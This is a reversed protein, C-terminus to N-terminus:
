GALCQGVRLSSRRRRTPPTDCPFEHCPKKAGFIATPLGFDLVEPVQATDRPDERVQLQRHVHVAELDLVAGAVHHHSSSGGVPCPPCVYCTHFLLRHSGAHAVAPLTNDLRWLPKVLRPLAQTTCQQRTTASSRCDVRTQPSALRESRLMRTPVLWPWAPQVRRWRSSHTGAAPSMISQGASGSATQRM